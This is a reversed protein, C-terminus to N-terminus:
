TGRSTAEPGCAQGHPSLTQATDHALIIPLNSNRWGSPGPGAAAKCNLVRRTILEPTVVFRRYALVHLAHNILEQFTTETAGDRKRCCFLERVQEAVQQSPPVPPASTLINVAGRGSGM